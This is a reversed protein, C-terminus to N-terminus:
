HKISQQQGPFQIRATSSIGKVCVRVCVCWGEDCVKVMGVSEWGCFFGWDMKWPARSHSRWSSIPCVKLGSSSSPHRPASPPPILLPSSILVSPWFLWHLAATHRQANWRADYLVCLPQIFNFVNISVSETLWMVPRVPRFCSHWDSNPM